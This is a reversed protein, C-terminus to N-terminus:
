ARDEAVELPERKRDAAGFGGHLVVDLPALVAEYARTHGVRRAQIRVQVLSRRGHQHTLAGLM